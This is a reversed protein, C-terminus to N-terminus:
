PTKTGNSPLARSEATGYTSRKKLRCPHLGRGGAWICTRARECSASEIHGVFYDDEGRCAVLAFGVLDGLFQHLTPESSAYVHNRPNLRHISPLALDFGCLLKQENDFSGFGAARLYLSCNSLQVPVIQRFADQDCHFIAACFIQLPNRVRHALRHGSQLERMARYCSVAAAFKAAAM